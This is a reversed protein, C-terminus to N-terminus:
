LLNLEECCTFDSCEGEWSGAIFVGNGLGLGHKWVNGWNVSAWVRSKDALLKESLGGSM